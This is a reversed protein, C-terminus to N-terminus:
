PLDKEYTGVYCTNKNEVIFKDPSLSSQIKM